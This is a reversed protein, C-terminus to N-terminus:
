ANMQQRLIQGLSCLSVPADSPCIGPAAFGEVLGRERHFSSGPYQSAAIVLSITNFGAGISAAPKASNPCTIAGESSPLREPRM